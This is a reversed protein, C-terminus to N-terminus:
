AGAIPAGTLGYRSIPGTSGDPEWEIIEGGSLEEWSRLATELRKWNSRALPPTPPPKWADSDIEVSSHTEQVQMRGSEDVTVYSGHFFHGSDRQRVVSSDAAWLRIACDVYVSLILVEGSGPPESTGPVGLSGRADVTAPEAETAGVVRGEPNIRLLDVAANEAELLCEFARIFSRVAGHATNNLSGLDPQVPLNLTWRAVDAWGLKRV